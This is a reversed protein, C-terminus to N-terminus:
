ATGWPEDDERSAPKYYDKSYYKVREETTPETKVERTKLRRLRKEEEFALDAKHKNWARKARRYAGRKTFTTGCDIYGIAGATKLSWKWIGWQPSEVVIVFFPVTM